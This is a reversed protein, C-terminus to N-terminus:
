SKRALIKPILGFDKDETFVYRTEFYKFNDWYKSDAHEIMIIQFDRKKLGVISDMFHNMLCFADRLKKEDDNQINENHKTKDAYYPISPQDIFLFNPVFANDQNLLFDHLGLFFCLHMFMYNSKSGVNRKYFKSDPSKLMLMREDINFHPRCSNYSASIGIQSGYYKNIADDLGAEIESKNSIFRSIKDSLDNVEDQLNIYESDTLGKSKPEKLNEFEIKLKVAEHMWRVSAANKSLMDMRAIKSDVAQRQEILGKYHQEFNEPLEVKQDCTEKIKLLSDKLNQVLLKTDEYDLVEEIHKNLFNLPVLSDGQEKSLNQYREYERKLSNYKAIQATLTKRKEKLADLDKMIKDNDSYQEFKQLGQKVIRLMFDVDNFLCDEGLELSVFKDKLRLLTKEYTQKKKAYDERKKYEAEMKKKEEAYKKKLEDQKADEIGLAIKIFDDLFYEFDIKSGFFNSDFYTNMTAIIDETLYSFILFHRFNLNVESKKKDIRFTAKPTHFLENFKLLLEGRNTNAQLEDPFEKGESFFMQQEVTENQPNKRAIVYDVNNLSFALGYWKVNQNIVDEVITSCESLLCYDIIRLISSKGTSSDGTIVNIKNPVFEYVKPEVNQKFWLKIQRIYFNM